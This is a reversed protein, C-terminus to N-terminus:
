VRNFKQLVPLVDSVINNGVDKTIKNGVYKHLIMEIDSFLQKNENRVYNPLDMKIKGDKFSLVLDGISIKADLSRTARTDIITNM